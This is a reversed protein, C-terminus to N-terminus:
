QQENLFYRVRSEINDYDMSTYVTTYDLHRLWTIQRKALQRTSSLIKSKMSELDLEGNLYQAAQKYGITSMAPLSLKEYKKKIHSVEDLLGGNLMFNMRKEISKHLLSRDNPIISLNLNRFCQVNEACKQLIESPKNNNSFYIELMRTIRYKDNFHIKKASVQDIENLFNYSYKLGKKEVMDGVLNKINNPVKELDSLGGSFFTKFYMMSGGVLIPIKNNLHIDNINEILNDYFKAVSYKEYPELINVMRHPFKTLIKSDPKASGINFEKYIMVSDVSIIELDFVKSLLIAFDTKGSATPGLLSIVKNM